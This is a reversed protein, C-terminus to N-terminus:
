YKIRCRFHDLERRVHIGRAICPISQPDISTLDACEGLQAVTHLVTGACASVSADPTLCSAALITSLLM